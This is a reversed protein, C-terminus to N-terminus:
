LTKYTVRLAYIRETTPMYLGLPKNMWQVEENKAALEYDDEPGRRYNRDGSPKFLARGAKKTMGFYCSGPTITNDAKLVFRQGLYDVTTYGNELLEDAVRNNTSGSPVIETAIDSADAGPILVEGSLQPDGDPWCGQWQDKYKIAKQFVEYRMVSNATNTSLVIDNTKPLNAINIRSNPLFTYNVGTQSVAGTSTKVPPVTGSGAGGGATSGPYIFQGFAGKNPDTLLQYALQDIKNQLDYAMRLVKLAADVISGRYVDWVKYRVEDTTLIKMPIRIEDDDKTVTKQQMGGDPGMYSVGIEQETTNQFYYTEGDALNVIEFFMSLINVTALVYNSVTEVRISCLQQRAKADTEARAMFENRQRIKEADTTSALLDDFFQKVAVGLPKGDPMVGCLSLSRRAFKKFNGQLQELSMTHVSTPNKM